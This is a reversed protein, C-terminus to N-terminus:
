SASMGTVNLKAIKTRLAVRDRSGTCFLAVRLEFEQLKMWELLADTSELAKELAPKAYGVQTAGLALLKAADLGSRVGGSGWIEVGGGVARASEIVSRATSIGWGAFTKAADFSPHGAARAGEIRGWHTGGLGSVDIARAGALALTKATPGSVGCGTEKVLVPLGLESVLRALADRGGRFTPTGEPQLAEQLSNLHVALAQAGLEDLIERIVRPEVGIIQSIGLNGILFLKPAEQRIRKWDDISQSVGASASSPSGRTRAELDRRLSGVGMAWGRSECALALRSNLQFADSHGATMGAVYFPTTSPEGLRTSAISVESFDLDPLAEHVLEIRDLDSHGVAQNAPDLSHRIHDRKRAEFQQIDM